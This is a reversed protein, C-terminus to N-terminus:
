LKLPFIDYPFIDVYIGQHYEVKQAKKEIYETNKNIVKCFPFGYGKNTKWDLIEFKNGLKEPAIKLFKEYNSRKMGIDMDDDWPIFGGHRIAGLLTGSELFYGIDNEECVRKIEKAIELQALQVKRLTIKDM